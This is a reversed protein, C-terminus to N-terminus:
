LLAFTLWRSSCTKLEIQMLRPTNAKKKQKNKGKRDVQAKDMTLFETAEDVVSQLRAGAKMLATIIANTSGADDCVGPTALVM